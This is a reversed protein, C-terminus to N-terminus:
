IVEGKLLDGASSMIKVEVIDAVKHSVSNVEVRLYNETYGYAKGAKIEEIYVKQVTDLFKERFEKIKSKKLKELIKVREKKVEPEIKGTFAAAATKERDSYPFIHFDSFNIKKMNEFTNWFNEEEEQPFGTIIDATIASDPVEEQVKKLLEVVFEARYNRKMLKLIKDDLSQISVHLHPMLKKNEKLLSIFKESLTDPYVSSVRVRDIEEIKLIKELIYDFNINEGFDSGYESLNIGTVVIEKYGAEGLFKIEELVSEPQRSRSMGRAYPIKCYSCFKTCGDQIKVFARAKDRSVAYKQSSYEKQDFINDVQYNSLKKSFIKYVEEKKVNGIIYDVEKIEKLDEVNTQAYCGTAIVVSDPNIKKARRLMKKNKKDAISTVTCTNIVYVDASDEFEVEKYGNELFDKKIIETEYQNVKCGLTYFAVKKSISM